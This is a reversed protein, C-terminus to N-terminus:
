ECCCSAPSRSTDVSRSSSVCVVRIHEVPEVEMMKCFFTKSLLSHCTTCLVHSRVVTRLSMHHASVCDFVSRTVGLKCDLFSLIVLIWHLSARPCTRKKISRVGAVLVFVGVKHSSSSSLSDHQCSISGQQGHVRSSAAHLWPKARQRRSAQNWM